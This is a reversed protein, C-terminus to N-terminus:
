PAEVRFLNHEGTTVDAYGEYDDTPRRSVFQALGSTANRGSCLARRGRLVEVRDIDFLLRWDAM